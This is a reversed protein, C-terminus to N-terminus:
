GLWSRIELRAPLGPTLRQSRWYGYNHSDLISLAKSVEAHTCAVRKMGINAMEDLEIVHEMNIEIRLNRWQTPMGLMLDVMRRASGSDQAFVLVNIARNPTHDTVDQVRAVFAELLPTTGPTVRTMLRKVPQVPDIKMPLCEPRENDDAAWSLGCRGCCLEDNIRIAKCDPSDRM